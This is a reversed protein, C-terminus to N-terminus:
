ETIQEEEAQMTAYHSDPHDSELIVSNNNGSMTFQKQEDNMM